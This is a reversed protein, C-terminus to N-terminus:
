DDAIFGSFSVGDSCETGNGATTCNVSLTVEEGASFIYPSVFHFDMDRFNELASQFLVDGDRGIIIQGTDGNPNQLVIDTLALTQEDPVQFSVPTSTGGAAGTVGLRFDIPDGYLNVAPGTTSATETTGGGPVTTEGAAGSGGDAGPQTPAPAGGAQTTPVTPIGAADLREDIADVEPAVAEKATTEVTPELVTFWLLMFLLLLAIAALVAKWFWKPLLPDQLLAGDVTIPERDEETVVVSFPHTVSPGRWFRRVPRVRVKGFEVTGPEISVAPPRFELAVAGDVDSGEFRPNVRTNGRNDVAIEHTAGRRGRSTRPMLEVNQDDFPDVIVTGEETV